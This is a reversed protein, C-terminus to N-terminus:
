FRIFFIIFDITVVRINALPVLISTLPVINKCEASEPSLHVAKCQVYNYIQVLFNTVSLISLCECM